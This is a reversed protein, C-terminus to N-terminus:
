AGEKRKWGAPKVPAPIPHKTSAGGFNTVVVRIQDNPFVHIYIDGPEDYREVEVIKEKVVDNRGVPMNWRVKVMIGPQWLEPVLTCCISANGAGFENMGGGGGENVSASYIYKDTHNVVGVSASFKKPQPNQPELACGVLSGALLGSILWMTGNTKILM